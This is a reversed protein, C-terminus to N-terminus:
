LWIFVIADPVASAKLASSFNITAASFYLSNIEIDLADIKTIHIQKDDKKNINILFFIFKSNGALFFTSFNILNNKNIQEITAINVVTPITKDNNKSLKFNKLCIYKKSKINPVWQLGWIAM